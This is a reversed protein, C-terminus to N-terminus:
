PPNPQGASHPAPIPQSPASLNDPRLKILLWPHRGTGDEPGLETGFCVAALSEASPQHSDVMSSSHLCKVNRNATISIRVGREKRKDAEM